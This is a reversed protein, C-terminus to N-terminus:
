KTNISLILAIVVLSTNFLSYFINFTSVNTIFNKRTFRDVMIIDNSQLYFGESNLCDITTLDILYLKPDQPYNRIVRINSRKGFDSLGGSMSLVDIVTASERSIQIINAGGNEDFLHVRFTLHVVKVYCPEKIYEKFKSKILEEAEDLTLNLVNVKDILPLRINGESDVRYGIMNSRGGSGLNVNGLSGGGASINIFEDTEPDKSKVFVSILDYPKIHVVLRKELEEAAASDVQALPVDQFIALNKRSVCGGSLLSIILLSILLRM